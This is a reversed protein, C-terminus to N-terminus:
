EPEGEGARKELRARERAAREELVEAALWRKWEDRSAGDAELVETAKPSPDALLIRVRETRPLSAAFARMAEPADAAGLLAPRIRADFALGYREKVLEVLDGDYSVDENRPWVIRAPGAPNGLRFLLENGERAFSFPSRALAELLARTTRWDRTAERLLERKLVTYDSESCPLRFEISNGCLRLWAHGRKAAEDLLRRTEDDTRMSPLGKTEFLRNFVAMLGSAKEIRVIQAGSLRGHADLFFGLSEGRAHDVFFQLLERELPDMAENAIRERFRGFSVWFPWDLLCFDGHKVADGLVELDEEKTGDRDLGFYLLHLTLRDAAADYVLGISQSEFKLCACLVPVLVLSRLKRV